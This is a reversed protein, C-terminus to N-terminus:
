QAKIGAGKIVPWWKEIEAKHFAAFGEPTQQERPAIDHGQEAIRKQVTADALAAVVAANLKAVVDKPTNKSAWLGHWLSLYVGPVGMEEATPVEPAAFWRSKSMVAIPKINGARVQPLSNAAMDCMLDIQGAVLDQAAPAGGRYPIFRYRTGTAAQFALGCIHGGAGFGVIGAAAKDPNAKLWATLENLDKAPFDRRTVIWLPTDALKAVPTLDALVDFLVPYTAPWAIHTAWNGFSLTYGDGAARAVRGVGLAGGAGPVDEVIITQGLTGRMHEALTRAMIDTAGGPPLPVVITITRSPYSQAAAGAGGILVAALAVSCTFRPM